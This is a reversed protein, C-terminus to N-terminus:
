WFVNTREYQTLPTKFVDTFPSDMWKLDLMWKKWVNESNTQWFNVLTRYEKLKYFIQRYIQQGNIRRLLMLVSTWLFYTYKFLNKIFNYILMWSIWTYTGRRVQMFSHVQQKLAPIPRVPVKMPKSASCWCPRSVPCTM